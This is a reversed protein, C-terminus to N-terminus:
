ASLREIRDSNPRLALHEECWGLVFDPKRWPSLRSDRYYFGEFAVAEAECANVGCKM